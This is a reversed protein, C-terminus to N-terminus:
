PKCGAARLLEDLPDEVARGFDVWSADAQVLPVLREVPDYTVTNGDPFRVKTVYGGLDVGDVLVKVPWPSPTM